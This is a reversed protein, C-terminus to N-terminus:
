KKHAWNQYRLRESEIFQALVPGAVRGARPAVGQGYLRALESGSLGAVPQNHVAFTGGVGFLHTLRSHNIREIIQADSAGDKTMQEIDSVSM